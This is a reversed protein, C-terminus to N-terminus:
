IHQNVPFTLTKIAVIAMTKAVLFIKWVAVANSNFNIQRKIVQVWKKYSVSINVYCGHSDDHCSLFRIASTGHKLM